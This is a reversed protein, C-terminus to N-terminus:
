VDESQVELMENAMQAIREKFVFICDSEKSYGRVIDEALARCSPAGCSGCDLKPLTEYIEELKSLKQMAVFMDDDLTRQKRTAVPVEWMIDVEPLNAIPRDAATKSIRKVRTQAVFNNEVTLPGGVCGGVCALAEIYDVDALKDNEIEDFVHMVNHIGDVAIYNEIDLSAVEGGSNAWCVGKFGSRSLEDGSDKLHAIVKLYMDKFSFVGDICSKKLGHPTKTCTAKAACPTIFFIGIEDGKYPTKEEAIMRALRAALNMPSILPIINDILSPYKTTILKVVAPCASNIIPVSLKGSAILEKTKKTVLQAAYAVEFVDDFGSKILGNLISNISTAKEFQGYFAPAPLAIKYKYNNLIDFSDTIAKKAHYPCVRICEGCDICLDKIIKAKQNRVRIAQTPCTKICNTCGKCKEKDLTVSHIINEM